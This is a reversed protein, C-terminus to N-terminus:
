GFEPAPPFLPGRGQLLDGNELLIRDMELHKARSVNQMARAYRPTSRDDIWPYDWNTTTRVFEAAFAAGVELCGALVVDVYSQAIPSDKSPWGPENPLYIWIPDEVVEQGNWGVVRARELRTRTYGRERRDFLPLDASRVAVLTGNTVSEDRRVVGLATMGSERDVFNWARQVGTVRAPIAVGSGGTRARSESNILSGYAFVYHIAM